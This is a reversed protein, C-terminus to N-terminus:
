QGKFNSTDTLLYLKHFNAMKRNKTTAITNQLQL